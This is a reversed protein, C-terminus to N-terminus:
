YQSTSNMLYDAHERASSLGEDKATFRAGVTQM